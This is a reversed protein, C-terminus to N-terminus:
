RTVAAMVPDACSAVILPLSVAIAALLRRM